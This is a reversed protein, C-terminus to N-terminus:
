FSIQSGPAKGTGKSANRTKASVDAAAAADKQEVSEKRQTLYSVTNGILEAMAEQIEDLKKEMEVLQVVTNGGNDGVAPWIRPLGAVEKKLATLSAIYDGLAKTDVVTRNDTGM